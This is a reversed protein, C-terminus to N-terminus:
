KALVCYNQCNLTADVTFIKENSSIVDRYRASNFRQILTQCKILHNEMMHPLLINTKQCRYPKLGLEENVIRSM